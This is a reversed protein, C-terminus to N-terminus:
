FGEAKGAAAVRGDLQAAVTGRREGDPDPKGGGGGCVGSRGEKAELVGGGEATANGDEVPVWRRRARRRKDPIQTNKAGVDGLCLEPFPRGYTGNTFSGKAQEEWGSEGREEKESAVFERTEAGLGGGIGSASFSSAARHTTVRVKDSSERCSIEEEVDGGQASRRARKRRQKRNSGRRLAPSGLRAASHQRPRRAERPAMREPSGDGERRGDSSTNASLRTELPFNLLQKAM